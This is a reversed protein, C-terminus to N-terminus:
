GVLQINYPALVQVGDRFYYTTVDLLGNEATPVVVLTLDRYNVMFAPLADDVDNSDVEIRDRGDPGGVTLELLEDLTLMKM